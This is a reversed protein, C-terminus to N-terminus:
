GFRVGKEEHLIKGIEADVLVIILYGEWSMHMDWVVQWITHGEPVKEYTEKNHGLKLREVMSANYYNAEGVLVSFAFRACM